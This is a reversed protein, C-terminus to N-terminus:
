TSHAEELVEREATTQSSRRRAAEREEV